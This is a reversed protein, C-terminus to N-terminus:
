VLSMGDSKYVGTVVGLIQIGKASSNIIEKTHHLAKFQIVQQRKHSTYLNVVGDSTTALVIEGNQAQQQKKIVIIDGVQIGQKNVKLEPAIIVFDGEEALSKPIPIYKLLNGDAYLLPATLQNKLLPLELYYETAIYQVRKKYNSYFGVFAQIFQQDESALSSFSSDLERSKSLFSSPETFNTEEDLKGKLLWDATIKFYDSLAIIFKGGPIRKDSEWNSINASDTGIAKGLTAMSDGNQTRLHKIRLGITHM